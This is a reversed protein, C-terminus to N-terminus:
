GRPLQQVRDPAPVAAEQAQHASVGPSKRGKLLEPELIVQAPMRRQGHDIIELLAEHAQHEGTMAGFAGTSSKDPNEEVVDILKLERTELSQFSEPLREPRPPLFDGSHPPERFVVADGFAEM